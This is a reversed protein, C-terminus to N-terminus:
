VAKLVFNNIKIDADPSLLMIKFQFYQYNEFIHAKSFILDKNFKCEYWKTWADHEIDQRYGRMWIRIDEPHTVEGDLYELRYNGTAVTNYLKTVLTGNTEPPISLKQGNEKESYRAYVEISNIVRKAPLEIVVRIYRLLYTPQLEVLNKKREFYIERMNYGTSDEATYLHIDFHKFSDIMMDNIKVYLSEIAKYSNLEIWPSTIEGRKDRSYFANKRLDIGNSMFSSFKDQLKSVLTVGWDVPAGTEIKGDRDIELGDFVTNNSDFQLCAEYNKVAFEEVQFSMNKRHWREKEEDKDRVIIDDIMGYGLILLYYRYEQSVNNFLYSVEQENRICKAETTAFTSRIMNDDKALVEKMVYGRITKDAIFSLVTDKKIYPTLDIYAYSYEDRAKFFLGNGNIGKKIFIDMNFDNWMQYTECASIYRLRSAIDIRESDNVCDIKCTTELHDGNTIVTDKVYNSSRQRTRITDAVRQVRRADINESSNIKEQNEIEYLFYEKGNDYFYGSHVIAVAANSYRQILINSKTIIAHFNNNKCKATIKDPTRGNITVERSEGEKLGTLVIPKKNIPEYADISYGVMEYLSSLDKFELSKPKRYEYIVKARKGTYNKIWVVIGAEELLKYDTVPIKENDIEVSLIKRVNSYYLKNFGDEEAIINEQVTDISYSIRMDEPPKIIYRAIEYNKGDQRYEKKLEITNSITFSENLNNITLQYADINSYDIDYKVQIGRNNKGLSWNEYYIKRDRLQTFKVTPKKGDNTNVEDIHYFMLENMDLPPSFTNVLDVNNMTALLMKIENYAVHMRTTTLEVYFYSFDGIFDSTNNRSNDMVFIGSTNAPLGEVKYETTNKNFDKRSVTRLETENGTNLVIFGAANKSIYVKDDRKLKLLSLLSNRSHILKKEGQIKIVGVKEGPKLTIYNTIKGRYAGAYIRSSSSKISVFDDTNIYLTVIDTTDNKYVSNTKYDANILIEKGGETKYLEVRCNTDITFSGGMNGSNFNTITYTDNLISPGVHVYEIVPSFTSFSEIVVNLFAGEGLGTPLKMTGDSMYIIDKKNLSYSIRYSSACINRITVPNLGAKTITVKIHRIGGPDIEYTKGETKLGSYQPSIEGDIETMVSITGQSSSSFSLALDYSLYSCDMEVIVQSTSDGTNCVIEANNKNLRFGGTLKIFKDNSTYDTKECRTKVTLPMGNMNSVDLSFSGKVGAPGLTIGGSADDRINRANLLETSKDVHLKVNANYLVDNELKFSNKPTLLNTKQESNSLFECKNIRMNDYPARSKFKLTYSKNPEVKGSSIETATGKDIIIDSLNVNFVGSTRELEQIFIDNPNIQAVTNATIRYRINKAALENKYQVLQLPIMKKIGQKRIYENVLITSTAYGTVEVDTSESEAHESSLITYLDDRQGTGDQYGNLPVDWVNPIYAMKKFGNEWNNHNWIKERAIDKNINSMTDYVTKGTETLLYMNQGNPQEVIIDEPDVSEYNMVANIIANKLGLETGNTARKFSYLIRQTLQSNSEGEYRQLSSFLAFEDFINWLDKKELKASFIQKEFTYYFIANDPDVNKPDLLIYDGQYLAYKKTNDTFLYPDKTIEYRSDNSTIGDLRGVHAVYVQCLIEDEHGLYHSLFFGSKFEEFAAKIHDQEEILSQLYKGGDSTNLRKRIDMWRPFNEVAKITAERSNLMTKTELGYLITSFLNQKM